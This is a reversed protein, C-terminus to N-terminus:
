DLKVGAAKVVAGWKAHDAKLQAAIQEPTGPTPDAGRASLRERLEKDALAKHIGTNLKDIIDRATKGPLFLGYWNMAEVKPMGAEPASPVDPLLPSRQAVTTALARLKGSQVHPLLVPLDAILMQAHGGLTSTVAPAAGGYPVHVIHTATESKFLEIVLHPLGGNGTSAANLQGPRAKALAILAKVSKVPLSPHVTLLEPTTTLISVPALDRFADFPLKLYVHPYIALSTSSLVMTYGDPAAKAVHDVGITGGAGGRNEIIVSQGMAEALKPSVMRAVIDIPGAPPFGIVIRLPKSPYTQAAATLPLVGLVAAICRVSPHM